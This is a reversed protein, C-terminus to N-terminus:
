DDSDDLSGASSKIARREKNSWVSMQKALVALQHGGRHFPDDPPLSIPRGQWHNFRRHATQTRHNAQAAIVLHRQRRGAVAIRDRVQERRQHSLTTTTDV